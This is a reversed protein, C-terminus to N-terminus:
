TFEVALKMWDKYRTTTTSKAIKKKLNTVRRYPILKYKRINHM